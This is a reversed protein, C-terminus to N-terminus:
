TFDVRRGVVEGEEGESMWRESKSVQSAEVHVIRREELKAGVQIHSARACRSAVHLSQLLWLRKGAIKSLTAPHIRIPESM